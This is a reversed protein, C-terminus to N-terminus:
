NTMNFEPTDILNIKCPLINNCVGTSKLCKLPSYEVPIYNFGMLSVGFYVSFSFVYVFM